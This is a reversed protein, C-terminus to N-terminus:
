RRSTHSGPGRPESGCQVDRMLAAATLRACRIRATYRRRFLPGAGDEPRQVEDRSVPVDIPPPGDEPWSGDLERRHIVTTRWVYSWSTLAIRGALAPRDQPSADM